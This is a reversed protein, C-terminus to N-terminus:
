KYEDNSTDYEPCPDPFIRYAPQVNGKKYGIWVEPMDNDMRRYVIWCEPAPKKNQAKRNLITQCGCYYNVAATIISQWPLLQSGRYYNVAATRRNNQSCCNTRVIIIHQIGVYRLVHNIGNPPKSSSVQLQMVANTFIAYHCKNINCLSM